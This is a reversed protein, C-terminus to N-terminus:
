LNFHSICTSSGNYLEPTQLYREKQPRTIRQVLGKEETAFHDSILRRYFLHVNRCQPDTDITSRPRTENPVAVAEYFRSTGPRPGVSSVESLFRCCLRPLRLNEASRRHGGILCAILLNYM